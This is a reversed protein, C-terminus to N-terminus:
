AFSGEAARLAALSAFADTERQERRAERQMREVGDRRKLAELALLRQQSRLVRQQQETLRLVRLGREQDQLAIAEDLRTVFRQYDQLAGGTAGGLRGAPSRALCDARFDYLRQLTTEAQRLAQQARAQAAVQQDRAATATQILFPLAHRM